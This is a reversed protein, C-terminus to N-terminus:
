APNEILKMLSIQELRANALKSGGWAGACLYLLVIPADFVLLFTRDHRAPNLINPLAHQWLLGSILLIGLAGATLIGLIAGQGVTLEYPLSAFIAGIIAGTLAGILLAPLVGFWQGWFFILLPLLSFSGQLLLLLLLLIVFMAVYLEAAALAALLGYRIGSSIFPFPRDRRRMM